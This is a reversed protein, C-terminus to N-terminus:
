IDSCFYYTKESQTSQVTETYTDTYNLMISNKFNLSHERHRAQSWLFCQQYFLLMYSMNSCCTHHNMVIVFLHLDTLM